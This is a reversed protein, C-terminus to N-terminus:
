LLGTIYNLLNEGDDSYKGIFVKKVIRKNDTVINLPWITVTFLKDFDGKYEPVITINPLEYGKKRLFGTVASCSDKMVAIVSVDQHTSAWRNLEILEEMCPNCTISGFSLLIVKGSKGYRVKNDNITKWESEPLKKGAIDPTSVKRRILLCRLEGNNGEMAITNTYRHTSLSDNYQEETLTNGDTGLYLFKWAGTITASKDTNQILYQASLIESFILVLLVLIYKTKM